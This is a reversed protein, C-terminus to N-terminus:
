PLIVRTLIIPITFHALWIEHYKLKNEDKTGIGIVARTFIIQIM